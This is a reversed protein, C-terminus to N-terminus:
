TVEISATSGEHRTTLALVGADDLAVAVDDGVAAQVAAALGTAGYTGAAITVSRAAGDVVLDLRDNLGATIVAGALPATGTVEAGSSSQSISITNTGVGLGAGARVAGIGLPRAGTAISLVDASTVAVSSSSVT